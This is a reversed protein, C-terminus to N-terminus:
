GEESYHYITKVEKLRGDNYTVKLDKERVLEGDYLYERNFSGDEFLYEEQIIVNGRLSIKLSKLVKNYFYSGIEESLNNYRSNIGDFKLIKINDEQSQTELESVERGDSLVSNKILCMDNLENLLLPASKFSYLDPCEKKSNFLNEYYRKSSSFSLKRYKGNLFEYEVVDTLEEKSNYSFNISDQPTNISTNYTVSCVLSNQLDIYEKKVLKNDQVIQVIKLSDEKSVRIPNCNGFAM